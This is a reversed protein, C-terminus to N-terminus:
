PRIEDLDGVTNHEALPSSRARNSLPERYTNKDLSRERIRTSLIAAVTLACSHMAERTLRRDIRVIAPAGFASGCHTLPDVGVAFTAKHRNKTGVDYV